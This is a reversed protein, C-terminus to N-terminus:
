EAAERPRYLRIDDFYMKGSGGPISINGQTGLGIAISDVNTLVIGQDEFAQLPIVWDTWVDIQAAAPDDHVVVAPTGASNSVAVYLPEAANSTIGIDQHAWQPSVATTTVNSFKAECTASTNHSTLALGIYVTSAMAINQPTGIITWASGNTSSSATFNGVIDREIKVWYPATIGTVQGAAGVNAGGVTPRYEFVVGQAPTVFAMAHASDPDLTERIMVGAKAWDNTNDISEVKAVMSGVGTLIKYAYHFEDSTGTIDTGSATMTYTGVPGEVFSGTSAPYGRFWLSLEAVGEETWDRPATLTLKAESYKNSGQKNNDYWYPMSQSGGHVITEETYSGTNGDGIESGTGNPPIYGPSGAAGAGLSDNWAFWIENNGIDYAEFDDVLIFDAVTYSWLKGKSITGDTNYEDIRWYYPGGGWEVGEPPIYSTGSQRDRYIGSTDSTDANEVADKDTGFYLDHQAANEGPSWSLPTASDIDPTSRNAPSPGWALMPDGTMIKDIEDETVVKNYIRVDDISGSFFAGASGADSRAGILFPRSQDLLMGAGSTTEALIGDHYLQMTDGDYTAVVHHWDGLTTDARIGPWTTDNFSEFLIRQENGHMMVGWNVASASEHGGRSVMHNHGQTNPINCWFSVSFVDINLAEANGCDVYTSSGTFELAGGDYGEVWEPDGQLTGHNGHGSWDVVTTGTGEDLKWWGLLNPDTVAIDPLTKFSWIDGTHTGAQEFEDVRWYYTKDLELPGPSFTTLGQQEGGTTATAVTDYDDGFYVTHLAADLGATWSLVLNESDVFKVGDGPVPEYAKKSPIWFSWVKGKWPSNPDADNVEDIRWFYTTGPVLGDPFAYGTLGAAYFTGPQNVRFTDSTGDNVDDFNDGIYVDHSVAFDGAQWSMTAFTGTIMAEDAPSPRRAYPNGSGGVNLLFWNNIWESIVEGRPDSDQGATQYFIGIRGGTATNHVIVPDARTGAANGALVLEVEWDGTLTDLHFPRDTAFNQLTPTYDQGDATVTVATDDEGAVTVGPIDMMNQLGGPGNTGAGNVVYFIWDGTNIICNGDDLFLEALSGDTQVNGPTYITDPFQGCIILLDPTGDGTHDRVWNALAAQNTPTFQEVSAGTVNDAIEQMERDAAAQGWWGAQTSIAIDSAMATSCFAFAIVFVLALNKM